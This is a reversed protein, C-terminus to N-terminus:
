QSKPLIMQQSFSLPLLNTTFAPKNKISFFQTAKGTNKM